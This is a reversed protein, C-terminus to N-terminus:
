VDRKDFKFNYRTDHTNYLRASKSLVNDLLYDAFSVARNKDTQVKLKRLLLSRM